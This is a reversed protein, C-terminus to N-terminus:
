EACVQSSTHGPRDGRSEDYQGEKVMSALVCVLESSIPPTVAILRPTYQLRLVQEQLIAAWKAWSSYKVICENVKEVTVTDGKTVAEAYGTILEAPHSTDSGLISALEEIIPKGQNVFPALLLVAMNRCVVTPEVMLRIRHLQSTVREAVGLFAEVIPRVQGLPPWQRVAEQWAEASFATAEPLQDPIIGKALNLPQSMRLIGCDGVEDATQCLNREPLLWAPLGSGAKLHPYGAKLWKTLTQGKM